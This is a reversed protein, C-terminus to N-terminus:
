NYEMKLNVEINLITCARAYAKLFSDPEFWKKSGRLHLYWHDLHVDRSFIAFNGPINVLDGDTSVVWDDFISDLDSKIEFSRLKMIIEECEM